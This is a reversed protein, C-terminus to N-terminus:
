KIESCLGIGKEKIQDCQRYIVNYEVTDIFIFIWLIWALNHVNNSELECFVAICVYRFM